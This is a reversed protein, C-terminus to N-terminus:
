YAVGSTSGHWSGILRPAQGPHNNSPWRYRRQQQQHQRFPDVQRPRITTTAATTATTTPSTSSSSRSSTVEARVQFTHCRLLLCPTKVRVVLSHPRDQDNDKSGTSSNNNNNILLFLRANELRGLRNWQDCVLCMENPLITSPYALFLFNFGTDYM